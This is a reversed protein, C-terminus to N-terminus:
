DWPTELCSPDADPAIWAPAGHSEQSEESEETIELPKEPTGGGAQGDPVARKGRTESSSDSSDSSDRGWVWGGEFDSKKPKGQLRGKLVTDRWWKLPKRLGLAKNGEEVCALSDVNGGALREELWGAARDADSEQGPRHALQAFVQDPDADTDGLWVPRYLQRALRRRDEETLDACGALAREQDAEPLAELRYTRGARRPALNAKVPLFLRVDADRESPAVVWAPRVANVWAVSGLVKQAARACDRKGVHAVLLVTVAAAAALEALPALLARLEAEKHGDIGARGAFAGAPDIVVLRVDPHEDLFTELHACHALSWPSPREGPAGEVGDLLHVRSLDAGCALLRPVITDAADDECSVILAEGAQPEYALGFACQGRSLRAALDLTIISKGMGGDGALLCLKGLPLIDPVLWRLPRPRVRAACATRLRRPAGGGQGGPPAPPPKSAGHAAARGDGTHGNVHSLDRPNMMGAHLGRTITGHDKPPNDCGAQQAAEYLAAEAAAYAYAGAGVFQGVAFSSKNLQTNLKGAPTAALIALEDEVAKKVYKDLPSDSDARLEWLPRGPAKQAAWRRVLDGLAATNVQAAEAEWPEGEVVATVRHPREATATGKRKTTGYVPWLRRADFCEAGVTAKPTDLFRGAKLAAEEDDTLRDNCRGALGALVSKLLQRGPGDNPLDIPYCLHWGNGSDGVVPAALGVGDCTGRCRCLVSWAAMREAEGASTHAPRCPDLDILLWRRRLVHPNRPFAGTGTLAADLPNPTFYTGQPRRREFDLAAAVADRLSACCVSEARDGGFLAQVSVVQDAALFISLSQRVRGAQDRHGIGPM